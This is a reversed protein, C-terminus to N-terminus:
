CLVGCTLVLSRVEPHRAFPTTQQFHTWADGESTESATPKNSRAQPIPLNQVYSCIHDWQQMSLGHSMQVLFINPHQRSVLLDHKGFYTQRANLRRAISVAQAFGQHAPAPQLRICETILVPVHMIGKSDALLSSLITWTPEPVLNTDSIYVLNRDFVYGM